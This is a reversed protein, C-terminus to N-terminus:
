ALGMHEVRVARVEAGMEAMAPSDYAVRDLTGEVVPTPVPFPPALVDRVRVTNRIVGRNRSPPDEIAIPEDENPVVRLPGLWVPLDFVDGFAMIGFERDDDTLVPLGEGTMGLLDRLVNHVCMEPGKM